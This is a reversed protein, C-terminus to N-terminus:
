NEKIINKKYFNFQDYNDIDLATGFKSIIPMPKKGIRDNLKTYVFRKSIFAANNVLYINKLDQTRPWKNNKINHSIWKNNKMLFTGAINASFGSDYKKKNKLFQDIFKIYCSENFCPSTVHTWLIYKGLCLKPIIKILKELCDDSAFEKSRSHIRIWKYKKLFLKTKICNTSLIFESKIKKKKLISKLKKLQLIKIETLGLKYNRIKKTNKNKIRKSGTRTPIFFSIM